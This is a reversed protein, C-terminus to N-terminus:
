EAASTHDHSVRWGETTREVLLTFLGTPADNERTLNYRGFVFAFDPSLVRVDLDSFRLTGMAARDPYNRQYRALLDDAGHLASGRSVFRLRPADLYDSVFAPLDGANWAEAQRGLLARVEREIGEHDLPEGGPQASDACGSLLSALLGAAAIGRRM